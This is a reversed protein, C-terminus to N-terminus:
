DSAFIKQFLETTPPHNEVDPFVKGGREYYRKFPVCAMEWVLCQETMSCGRDCPALATLALREGFTRTGNGHSTCSGCTKIRNSRLQGGLVTKRGGCDCKCHWRAGDGESGAFATVVLKGYRNGVEDQARSDRHLIEDSDTNDLIGLPVATKVM